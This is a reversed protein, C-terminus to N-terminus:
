WKLGFVVSIAAPNFGPRNALQSMASELIRGEVVKQNLAAADGKFTTNLNRALAAATAPHNTDTM